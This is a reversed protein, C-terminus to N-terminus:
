LRLLGWWRCGGVLEAADRWDAGGWGRAVVDCDAAAGADEDAAVGDEEGDGDADAVLGEGREGGEGGGAVGSEGADGGEVEERGGGAEGEGADECDGGEGAVEQAGESDVPARAGGGGGGTPRSGVARGAGEEGARPPLQHRMRQVFHEDGALRGAARRAVPEDRPDLVLRVPPRGAPERALRRRLPRQRRPRTRAPPRALQHALPPRARPPEHQPPRPLPLPLCRCPPHTPPHKLPPAAPDRTDRPPPSDVPFTFPARSKNSAPPSAGRHTSPPHPLSQRCTSSLPGPRNRCFTSTNTVTHLATTDSLNSSPLIQCSSLSSAVGRQPLSRARESHDRCLAPSSVSRRYRM